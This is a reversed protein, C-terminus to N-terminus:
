LKTAPNAKQTLGPVFFHGDLDFHAAARGPNDLLLGADGGKPAIPRLTRGDPALAAPILKRRGAPLANEPLFLAFTGDAEVKGLAVDRGEDAIGEPMTCRVVLWAGACQPASGSLLFGPVRGDVAARPELTAEGQTPAGMAEAEPAPLARWVGARLSAFLPTHAMVFAPDPFVERLNEPQTLRFLEQRALELRPARNHLVLAALLTSVAFLAACLAFGRALWRRWGGALRGGHLFWLACLMMWLPTSFTAYRSEQAQGLGFGGRAVATAGATLLTFAAVCLWPALLRLTAGTDKGRSHWVGLKLAGLAALAFAGALLALPQLTRDGALAGGLYTLFYGLLLHPTKLALLISPHHAPKVYGHFYGLWVLAGFALWLTTSVAPRRRSDGGNREGSIRLAILPALCPWYFLGNAFSFSAPLGVLAMLALRGTTLRAGGAGLWVGAWITLSPLIVSTNIGVSFTEWQMLSFGLASFLALPRRDSRDWGQLLLLRWALLVCGGAMLFILALEPWRALRFAPFFALGAVRVIASRQENNQLIIDPLGLTGASLKDLVDTWILWEDWNLVDVAWLCLATALLIPPILPAPRWSLASKLAHM